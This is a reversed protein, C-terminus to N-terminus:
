KKTFCSTRTSQKQVIDASRISKAFLNKNLKVEELTDFEDQIFESLSKVNNKIMYLLESQACLSYDNNIQGAKIAVSLQYNDDTTSVSSETQEPICKRSPKLFDYIDDIWKHATAPLV